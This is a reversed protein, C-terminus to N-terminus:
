SEGNRIQHRAQRFAAPDAAQELCEMMLRASPSLPRQRSWRMGLPGVRTPLELPLIAILGLNQYHRSVDGALVALADSLQLYAIIVHVSITEIHNVPMALGHRLFALELPERLLTGAPPLVWPYGELDPWGLKRRKVLPHHRDAVLSVPEDVLIKEELEQAPHNHPLRGVILDLKGLLLDPLLSEMSGERVFVTTGPSRQKLLALGRPLLALATAALSGVAVKGTAGSMLGRLEERALTLESLVARARRILCEGYITPHVGRATREFLKVGVGAELEALAKSVAPQTVNVHAAVKGVHRFEDLAVLLQLHRPKLDFHDPHIAPAM